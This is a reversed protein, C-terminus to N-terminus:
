DPTIEPKKEYKSMQGTEKNVITEFVACLPPILVDGGYVLL